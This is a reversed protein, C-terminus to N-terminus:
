PGFNERLWDITLAEEFRDFRGRARLAARGIQKVDEIDKLHTTQAFAAARDLDHLFPMASDDIQAISLDNMRFARYRASGLREQLDRAPAIDLESVISRDPRRFCDGRRPVFREHLGDNPM